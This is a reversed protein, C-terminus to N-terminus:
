QAHHGRRVTQVTEEVLKRSQEIALRKADEVSQRAETRLPGVTAVARAATIQSRIEDRLRGSCSKEQERQQRLFEAKQDQFLTIATRIQSDLSSSTSDDSGRTALVSLAVLAGM